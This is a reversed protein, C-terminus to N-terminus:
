LVAVGTIQAVHGEHVVLTPFGVLRGVAVLGPLAPEAAVEHLLLGDEGGM